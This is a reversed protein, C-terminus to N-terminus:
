INKTVLYNYREAIKSMKTHIQSIQAIHKFWTKDTTSKDSASILKM